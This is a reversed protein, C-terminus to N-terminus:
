EKDETLRRRCEVGARYFVAAASTPDYRNLGRAAVGEFGRTFAALAQGGIGHAALAAPTGWGILVEMNRDVKAKRLARARDERKTMM